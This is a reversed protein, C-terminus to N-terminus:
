IVVSREKVADGVALVEDVLLIEPELHAAVAFALRVRKPTGSCAVRRRSRRTWSASSVEALSLVLRPSPWSRTSAATSRSAACVQAARMHQTGVGPTAGNVACRINHVIGRIRTILSVGACAHPALTRPLNRVPHLLLRQGAGNGATTDSQTPPHYWRDPATALHVLSPATPRLSM